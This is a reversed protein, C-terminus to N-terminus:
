SIPNPKEEGSVVPWEGSGKFQGRLREAEQTMTGFAPSACWRRMMGMDFYRTFEPGCDWDWAEQFPLGALGIRLYFAHLLHHSAGLELYDNEDLDSYLRKLYAKSELSYIKDGTVPCGAAALHARLQHKRGTIPSLAVLARGNGTAVTHFLTLSPKGRPDVHMRCRVPGDDMEMLPQAFRGSGDKPIESTVAAYMKIWGCGPQTPAYERLARPGRAFAVLGSTERDLRNLPSWTSDGLSERVLNALTQFFIKGTRHMPMGAPKHVFRLDDEERGPLLHFNTPVDPEQYDVVAFRLTQGNRPRDEAHAPNGDMSLRGQALLDLWEERSHYPFRATLYEALGSGPVLNRVRTTFSSNIKPL